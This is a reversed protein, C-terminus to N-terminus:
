CTLTTAPMTSSTTARSRGHIEGVVTGNHKIVIRDAYAFVDVTRGVVTSMVSYKNNDSRVLCLKSM